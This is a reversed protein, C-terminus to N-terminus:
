EYETEESQNFATLRFGGDTKQKLLLVEQETKMLGQSCFVSLESGEKYLKLAEELTTDEAEMLEVIAELRELAQEYTQKKRPM